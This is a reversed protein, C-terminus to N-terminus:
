ILYYKSQLFVQEAVSTVSVLSAGLKQCEKVANNQNVTNTSFFYCSDSYPQSLWGSPCNSDQSAVTTLFVVIVFIM